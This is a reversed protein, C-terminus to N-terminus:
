RTGRGHRSVTWENSRLDRQLATAVEASVPIGGDASAAVATTAMAVIGGLGSAHPAQQRLLHGFPLHRLRGSRRPAAMVRPAAQRHLQPSHRGAGSGRPQRPQLAADATAVNGASPIDCPADISKGGSPLRDVRKLAIGHRSVVGAEWLPSDPSRPAAGVHSLDGKAEFIM